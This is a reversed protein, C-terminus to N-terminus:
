TMYHDYCLGAYCVRALVLANSVLNFFFRLTKCHDLLAAVGTHVDTAVWEFNNRQVWLDEVTWEHVV